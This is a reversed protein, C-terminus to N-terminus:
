PTTLLSDIQGLRRRNQLRRRRTPVIVTDVLSNFCCRFEKLLPFHCYKYIGLDNRTKPPAVQQTECTDSDIGGSQDRQRDRTQQQGETQCGILTNRNM